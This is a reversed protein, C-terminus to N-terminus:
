EKKGADMPMPASPDTMTAELDEGKATEFSHLKSSELLATADEQSINMKDFHGAFAKPSKDYESKSVFHKDGIILRSSRGTYKLEM